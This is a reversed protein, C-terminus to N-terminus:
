RALRVLLAVLGIAIADPEDFTDSKTWDKKRPALYPFYEIVGNRVGVKSASRDRGIRAKVSIAAVQQIPIHHKAIITQVSALAANALVSQASAKGVGIVPITENAFRHPSYDQIIEETQFAWYQILRMRYDQWGEGEMKPFGLIGSAVYTISTPNEDNVNECTYDLVAWGMRTAGPDIALLRQRM